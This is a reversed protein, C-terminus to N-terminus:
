TKPRRRWYPTGSWGGGSYRGGQVEYGHEYEDFSEWVPVETHGADQYAALRHHGDWLEPEFEFGHHDQQHQVRIPPIPRGRQIAGTLAHNTKEPRIAAWQKAPASRPDDDFVPSDIKHVTDIVEQTPMFMRLQRPQLSDRASVTAEGLHQKGQLHDAASM